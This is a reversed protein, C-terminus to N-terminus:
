GVVIMLLGVMAKIDHKAVLEFMDRFDQPSGISSGTVILENLILQFPSIAVKSPPAALCVFIGRKKLFQTYVSVDVDAAITNLMIDVKKFGKVFEQMKKEDDQFDKVAVFDDAGLKRAEKEKSHTTSFAVVEAGMAKAIQLAVHGLGGIGAVGVRSGPGIKFRKLPTFTTVGACLLPAASASDCSDPIPFAFREHTRHYLAFGGQTQGDFGPVPAGYTGQVHDCMTESQNNCFDCKGCSNAQPGVGVRQGVKLGKVDGGVQTIVGIIEHGPIIPNKGPGWDGSILHLDSHCVGCHTLKVEVMDKELPQLDFEWKQLKCDPVRDFAAYGYTKGSSASASMNSSDLDSHV